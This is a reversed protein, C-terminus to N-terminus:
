SNPPPYLFFLPLDNTPTAAKSKVAAAAAIIAM